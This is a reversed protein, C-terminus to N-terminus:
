AELEADLQRLAAELEFRTGPSADESLRALFARCALALRHKPLRGAVATSAADIAHLIATPTTM